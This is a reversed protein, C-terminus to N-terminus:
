STFTSLLARSDEKYKTTIKKLKKDFAEQDLPESDGM